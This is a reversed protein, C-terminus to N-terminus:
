CRGRCASLQGWGLIAGPRSDRVAAGLAAPSDLFQKLDYRPLFTDVVTESLEVKLGLGAIRRGLEYDDALYDSLAEFGGIAALDRRRFALTSGLGFHHRRGTSAGGTSWPQFGHQHCSIGAAIGPQSQGRRSLPLDGPRRESGGAARAVTRLYNSQVRIDSDNVVIHEYQAEPLMQALNSVKTNAGLNRQCVCM